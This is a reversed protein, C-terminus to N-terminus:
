NRCQMAEVMAEFSPARAEATVDLGRARAAATTSPGITYIAARADRAVQRVFGTVASPSALVISDVDLASLARKPERDPAPMTRYVGFRSCRMGAAALKRELADGANEALALVLRTGKPLRADLLADALAAATGPGILDVRGYLQRAAEATTEGVAAIRLTRSLKPTSEASDTGMGLLAACAQAGRKSTLVLWDAAAIGDALARALEPSELRETEICPLVVASAGCQELRAAWAACDEVSRTLLIRRGALPLGANAAASVLKGGRAPDL